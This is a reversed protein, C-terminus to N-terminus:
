LLGLLFVGILGIKNATSMQLKWVVPIPIALIMIDISVDSVGFGLSLAGIDVCHEKM